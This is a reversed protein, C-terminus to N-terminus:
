RSQTRAYVLLGGRECVREDDEPMTEGQRVKVRRGCGCSCEFVEVNRARTRIPQDLKTGDCDVMTRFGPTPVRVRRGFPCALGIALDLLLRSGCGRCSWLSSDSV